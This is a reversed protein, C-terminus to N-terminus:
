YPGCMASETELDREKIKGDRGHSTQQNFVLITRMTIQWFGVISPMTLSFPTAAAVSSPGLVLEQGGLARGPITVRVVLGSTTHATHRQGPFAVRSYRM